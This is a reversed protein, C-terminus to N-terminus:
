QEATIKCIEVVTDVAAQMDQVSTWEHKSHIAQEAAFLNPCPLGM